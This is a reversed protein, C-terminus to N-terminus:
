REVGSDEWGAALDCVGQPLAFGAAQQRQEFLRSLVVSVAHSLSMSEAASSPLPRWAYTAPGAPHTQSHCSALLCPMDVRRTIM